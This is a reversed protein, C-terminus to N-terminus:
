ASPLLFEAGFPLTNIKDPLLIRSNSLNGFASFCKTVISIKNDKIQICNAEIQDAEGTNLFQVYHQHTLRTKNIHLPLSSATRKKTCNCEPDASSNCFYCYVKISYAKGRLSIVELANIEDVSWYGPAGANKKSFLSHQPHLSGFDLIYDLAALKKDFDNHPDPVMFTFCDTDYNALVVGPWTSKIRQWFSYFSKKALDLACFSTALSKNFHIKGPRMFFLCIGKERNLIKYNLFNHRSLLHMAETATSTIKTETYKATSSMLVGFIRNLLSKLFLYGISDGNEQAKQRLKFVFSFFDRLWPKQKYRLSKEISQLKMGSELYFKITSIECVYNTKDNVDLIIKEDTATLKGSGQHMEIWMKKQEEGLETVNVRRKVPCYPLQLTQKALSKPYILNVSLIWGVDSNEDYNRIEEETPNQAWEYDSFPMNFTLVNGYMANEDCILIHTRDRPNSNGLSRLRECKAEIKRTVCGVPPGRIHDLLFAIMTPDKMYQFKDKLTSTCAAWSYSSLTIYYLPCLGFKEMAYDNFAVTIDALILVSSLMSLKVFEGFNKCGFAEYVGKSQAYDALDAEKETIPCTFYNIPPFETKDMSEPGTYYMSPFHFGMIVDALAEGKEPFGSFLLPFRSKFQSRDYGAYHRTALQERTATLFFSTDFFRVGKISIGLIDEATKCIIKAKSAQEKTLNKLICHYEKQSVGHGIVVPVVPLKIAFNCERCISRRYKGTIKDHDRCKVVMDSFERACFQCKITMIHILQDKETFIMQRKEKLTIKKIKQSLEDVKDLFTSVVNEGTYFQRYLLKNKKRYFPGILCLCYAFPKLDYLSQVGNESSAVSPDSLFNFQFVIKFPIEEYSKFDKFEFYEQKPFTLERDLGRMMCVKQHKEFSTTFMGFCYDCLTSRRHGQKGLLGSINTITAWHFKIEIDEKNDPLLGNILVAKKLLLLDVHQERIVPAARIVSLKNSSPVFASISITPNKAEFEDLQSENVGEYCGSFDIVKTAQCEKILANYSKPNEYLRKLRKKDNKELEQYFIRPKDPLRICDRKLGALISRIFCFSDEGKCNIFYKACLEKPLPIYGKGIQSKFRGMKLQIFNFSTVSFGSQGDTYLELSTILYDAFNLFCPFIYNDSYLRNFPTYITTTQPIVKRPHELTVNLGVSIKINKHKQLVQQLISEIEPFMTNFIHKVSEMRDEFQYRFTMFVENLVSEFLEFKDTQINGSSSGEGVQQPLPPSCLHENM